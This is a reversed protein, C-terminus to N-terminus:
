KKILEVVEEKELGTVEEIDEYSFNDEHQIMELAIKNVIEEYTMSVLEDLEEKTSIYIWDEFGSLTDTKCPRNFMQTSGTLCIGNPLTFEISTDDWDPKFTRSEFGYSEILKLSLKKSM